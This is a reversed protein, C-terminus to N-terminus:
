QRCHNKIYIKNIYDNNMFTEGFHTGMEASNDFKKAFDTSAIHTDLVASLM